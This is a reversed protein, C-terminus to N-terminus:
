FFDTACAHFLLFSTTFSYLFRFKILGAGNLTYLTILGLCTAIFLRDKIKDSLRCMLKEFPSLCEIIGM